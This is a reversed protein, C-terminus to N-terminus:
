GLLWLMPYNLLIVKHRFIFEYFYAGTGKVLTLVM